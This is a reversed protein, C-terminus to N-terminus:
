RAHRCTKPTRTDIVPQKGYGDPAPRHAPVGVQIQPIRNRHPGAPAETRRRRTEVTSIDLDVIQSFELADRNLPIGWLGQAKYYNEVTKCLEPPRGTGALYGTTIEDIGFFGMTAGYEPAM